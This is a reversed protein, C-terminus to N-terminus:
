GNNVRRNWAEIFRQKGLEGRHGYYDRVFTINCSSCRIEWGEINSYTITPFDNGCFPCPKLEVDDM